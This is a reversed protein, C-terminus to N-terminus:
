EWTVLLRLRDKPDTGLVQLQRTEEVGDIERIFTATGLAVTGPRSLEVFGPAVQAVTYKAGGSVLWGQAILSCREAFIQVTM